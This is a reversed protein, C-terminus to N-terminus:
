LNYSKYWAIYQGPIKISEGITSHAQIQGGELSKISSGTEPLEPITPLDSGFPGQSSRLELKKRLQDALANASM